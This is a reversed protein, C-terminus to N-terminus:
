RINECPVGRERPRGRHGLYIHPSLVYKALLELHGSKQGHSIIRLATLTTIGFIWSLFLPLSMINLLVNTGALVTFGAVIHSVEFGWLQTRNM